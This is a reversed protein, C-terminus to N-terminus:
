SNCQNVEEVPIWETYAAIRKVLVATETSGARSLQANIDFRTTEAKAETTAETYYGNPRRVAYQRDQRVVEIGAESDVLKM